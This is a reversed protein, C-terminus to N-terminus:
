LIKQARAAGRAPNIGIKSQRIFGVFEAVEVIAGLEAEIQELAAGPTRGERYFLRFAQRLADIAEPTCAARRLGIVNLGTVCNYGQQLVFPPIDKTTGAMGGLLRLRGIRGGQEGATQGGRCSG